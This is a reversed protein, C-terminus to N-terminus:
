GKVGDNGEEQGGEKSRERREKKRDRVIQSFMKIVPIISSLAPTAAHVNECKKTKDRRM